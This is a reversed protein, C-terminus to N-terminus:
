GGPQDGVPSCTVDQGAYRLLMSEAERLGRNQRASRAGRNERYFAVLWCERFRQGQSFDRWVPM